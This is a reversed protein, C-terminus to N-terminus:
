FRNKVSGGPNENTQLETAWGAKHGPWLNRESLVLQAVEHAYVIIFSVGIRPHTDLLLPM